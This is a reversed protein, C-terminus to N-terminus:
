GDCIECVRKFKQDLRLQELNNKTASSVYMSEHFPRAKHCGVCLVELNSPRNNGRNGDKHHVHLLGTNNSCDIRCCSCVWNAKRRTEHSIKAWDDTYNGDPFTEPTYLPLCRFISEFEEYFKEVSFARMIENKQQSTASAWGYYDLSKLCNKCPDLMAEMAEGRKSTIEDWPRVSFYGDARVSTVYRNFRGRNRMDEITRCETMHFKPQDAPLESLKFEDVFPDYIHLTVQTNGIALLGGPNRLQEALEAGTLVVEQERQIRLEIPNEIVRANRIEGLTAKKGGISRLADELGSSDFTLKM